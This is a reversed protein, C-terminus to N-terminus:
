PGLAPSRLAWLQVEVKPGEWQAAYVTVVEGKVIRGDDGLVPPSFDSGQQLGDGISKAINDWDSRVPALIRGSVPGGPEVPIRRSVPIRKPRALVAVISVMVMGHIPIPVRVTRAMAGSIRAVKNEYGRSAAPKRGRRGAVRVSQKGHPQGPVTFSLVLEFRPDM